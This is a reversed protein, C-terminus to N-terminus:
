CVRVAHLVPMGQIKHFLQRRESKYIGSCASLYVVSSNRHDVIISFVDSNDIVGNKIPHWSLGGDNTKWALHWTGAFVISPDRPDIAISEINKIEGNTAPSMREWTEGGDKSRFVGDLAGAVIIRHDSPALAMARISKGHM